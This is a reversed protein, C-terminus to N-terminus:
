PPLKAETARALETARACLDARSAPADVSIEIMDTTVTASPAPGHVVSAICQQPNDKGAVTRLWALRGAIVTARGYEGIAFWNGHHRVFSLSVQPSGKSSAGWTCSWNAFGPDRITADLGAVKTLAGRDLVACADSGALLSGSTRGPRYSIGYRALSDVATTTGVETVACLNYPLLAPPGYTQIVIRTRDALVLVNECGAWSNGPLNGKRIITLDGLRQPTGSRSTMSVAPAAFSVNLHFNGKATGIRAQCGGLPGNDIYSPQGFQRLPALDILACPDAEKPDGTLAIPGVASPLTPAAARPVNHNGGILALTTGAALAALTILALV